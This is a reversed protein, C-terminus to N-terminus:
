EDFALEIGVDELALTYLTSFSGPYNGKIRKCEEVVYRIIELSSHTVNVRADQTTRWGPRLLWIYAIPHVVFAIIGVIVIAVFGLFIYREVTKEM